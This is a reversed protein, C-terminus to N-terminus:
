EPFTIERIRFAPEEKEEDSKRCVDCTFQVKEGEFGERELVSRECYKCAFAYGGSMGGYPFSKDKPYMRAAAGCPLCIRVNGRYRRSREEEYRERKEYPRSLHRNTFHVASRIQCCYRCAFFDNASPMQKSECDGNMSPSFEPWFEIELLDEMTYPRSNGLSITARPRLNPNGVKAHLERCTFSLALHSAYPLSIAIQHVIEAPLSSFNTTTAM